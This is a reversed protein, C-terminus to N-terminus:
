GAKADRQRRLAAARELAADFHPCINEAGVHAAFGSSAMLAAPQRRAGCFLAHRGSAHLADAADELAKLGTADLATMNRLRFAVIPPLTDLHDTVQQLLDTSGFLFPGHVRFIAIDDPIAKDQMSHAKSDAIYDPTVRTVTTTASVRRIFLLASLMMGVEVAVTLDAFVTLFLTVAWVARDTYTQRLLPRIEGWEGMNAAVIMLIAALVASRFLM